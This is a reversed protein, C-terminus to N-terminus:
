PNYGNEFFCGVNIYSCVDFHRRNLLEGAAFTFEIIIGRTKLCPRFYIRKIVEFFSFDM